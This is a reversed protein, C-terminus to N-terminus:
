ATVWEQKNSCTAGCNNCTYKSTYVKRDDIEHELQHNFKIDLSHCYACDVIVGDKQEKLYRRFIKIKQILTLAKSLKEV